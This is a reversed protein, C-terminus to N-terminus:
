FQQQRKNIIRNALFFTYNSLVTKKSSRPWFATDNFARRANQKKCKYHRSGVVCKFTLKKKLSFGVVVNVMVLCRKMGAKRNSM